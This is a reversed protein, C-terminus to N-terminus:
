RIRDNGITFAKSAKKEIMSEIFPLKPELKAKKIMKELATKTLSLNNWVLEPPAGYAILAKCLRALDIPKWSERDTFQAIKGGTAVPGNKEVWDKLLGKVREVLDEAFSVFLLAKEADALWVIADPIGIVPSGEATVLAREASERIECGPVTCWKCMSCVRAPWETMSNVEEIRQSILDHMGNTDGPEFELEQTSRTAVNDFICRIKKLQLGQSISNNEQMWASKILHAYLKLQLNDSDGYGSKDDIIVLEGAAPDYYAFDVVARFAVEPHMWAERDSGLLKLDRDFAFRGEVQTWKLTLPVNVFVSDRFKTLLEWVRDRVDEPLTDKNDDFYSADNRLQSALCWGRYNALFKAVESGVKMAESEPEKYSKDIRLVRLRFPCEADKWASFSLPITKSM